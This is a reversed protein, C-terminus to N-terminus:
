NCVECHWWYSLSEQDAQPLMLDTPINPVYISVWVCQKPHGQEAPWGQARTKTFSRTNFAVSDASFFTLPGVAHMIFHVSVCEDWFVRAKNRPKQRM